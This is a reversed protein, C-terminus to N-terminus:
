LCNSKPLSPGSNQRAKRFLRIYHVSSHITMALASVLFGLGFWYGWDTNPNPSLLLLTLGILAIFFASVVSATLAHSLKSKRAMQETLNQFETEGYARVFWIARTNSASVLLSPVLVVIGFATSYYPVLCVLLTAMAFPWGLKKAIPNMELKLKPTALYTSGIDGIRALLILGCLLHELKVHNYFFERM